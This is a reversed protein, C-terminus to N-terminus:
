STLFRHFHKIYGSESLWLKEDAPHIESLNKYSIRQYIFKEFAFKKKMGDATETM